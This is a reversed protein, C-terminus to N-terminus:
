YVAPVGMEMGQVGSHWRGATRRATVLANSPKMYAEAGAGKGRRPRMSSELCARVVTSDLASGVVRNTELVIAHM